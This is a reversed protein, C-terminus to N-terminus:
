INARSSVKIKPQLNSWMSVEKGGDLVPDIKAKIPFNTICVCRFKWRICVTTGNVILWSSVEIRQQLIPWIYADIVGELVPQITAKICARSSVEIRPQLIPMVYANITVELVPQITGKVSLRSTV